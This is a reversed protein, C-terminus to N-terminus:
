LLTSNQNSNQLKAACPKKYITQGEIKLKIIVFGICLVFAAVFFLMQMSFFFGENKRHKTKLHAVGKLTVIAPIYEFIGLILSLYRNEQAQNKVQWLPSGYNVRKM